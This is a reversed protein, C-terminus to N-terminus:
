PYIVAPVRDQWRVAKRRGFNVKRRGRADNSYRGIMVEYESMKDQYPLGKRERWRWIIGAEVLRAPFLLVDTDATFIDGAVGGETAMWNNTVYHVIIDTSPEALFSISYNGDFGTVRYFREAGYTGDESLETWDGDITVPVAGADYQTDYVARPDRQMRRFDAPLAYTEVGTGTITTQAGIPSPADIRDLLDAVTDALFDDRLEVHELTTATIWSSPITISCQRAAKNLTDVVLM